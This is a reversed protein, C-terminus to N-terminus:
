EEKDNDSDEKEIGYYINVINTTLEAVNGSTYGHRIITSVAIEPEDYPAYLIFTAHDPKKTNEQATGSKCGVKMSLSQIYSNTQGALYMGHHVLDWVDEPVEEMSSVIEPEATFVIEGNNDVIKNILTLDRCVGNDAITAVYRCLNLATYGHNGQGIASAVVHVNSSSPESEYIEIGSKTALGLKKAYEALVATGRDSNYQGNEDIALRYGVEYFFINCSDRIATAVTENGHAGPHIWCKPNPTVKEFIGPCLIVEGKSIVNETLGAVSSVIKYTSGPANQSQTAANYLPSSKDSRLMSYYEADVTVSLKNNDYSPYSVLARVQGTAIDTVVASGSCPELALQAPTIELSSIKDIMFQYASVTGMILKGYLEEDYPLIGQDYLLVCVQSGSLSGNQIMYKYIIKSFGADSRLVDFIFAILQEYAESLSTYEDDSYLSVDIWNMAIAYTLYDKLSITESRWKLFIEDSEDVAEVMVIGETKLLSYIYKIYEYNEASLKGVTVATDATLESHITDLVTEQKQLFSAYVTKETSTTQQAIASTKIINNDILAFYVDKIPIFIDNITTGDSKYSYKENSNVIKSVLISALEEEIAHYIKKQLDIDITLYVDNGTVPDEESIVEKIRGVTDVYVQRSGKTGHLYLEMSQEIGAKGVIDNPAYQENQAQLTVLEDSSAKGTYGIIHAAYRGDVYRRIYEESVTVGTLVDSHELIDAVVEDSVDYALTFEMSRNYSNATMYTRVNVIKIRDEKSYKESLQYRDEGCLYDMVEEATANKQTEDLLNINTKGYCDRLFRLRAMGDVNDAYEYKGYDNVIISFDCSVNHNHREIIKVTQYIIENLRENREETSSYVGIDSIDISFALENYALLKGNVDYIRGRTASIPRTNEVAKSIAELYEEGNVIQLQFLRFILIAMLATLVLIFPFIRSKLVSVIYEIVEKLM